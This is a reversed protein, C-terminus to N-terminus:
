KLKTMGEEILANFEDLKPLVLIRTRRNLSRGEKTENSAVPVYYSRGAPILREPAVKYDNQLIRVISTARKVSLDWNDQIGTTSISKNDTHGEVMVDYNPKNNVIKAVKALVNKAKDTVEFSGSKFLLRDSISILVVGKDVNIQVDEDSLDGLEGKLGAILALTVSDQRTKADQLSKLQSDKQRISELSKELNEAGKKSMSTLDSMSTLLQDNYKKLLEVEASNVKNQDLCKALEMRAQSLEAATKNQEDQLANFKSKSVCSTFAIALVAGAIISNKM